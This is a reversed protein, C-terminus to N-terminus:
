EDILILPAMTFLYMKWKSIEISRIEDEYFNRSGQKKRRTTIFNPKMLAGMCHSLAVNRENYNKYNVVAPMDGGMIAFMTLDAQWKNFKIMYQCKDMNMVSEWEDDIKNM